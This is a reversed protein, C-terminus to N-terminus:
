DNNVSKKEQTQFSKLMEEYVQGALKNQQEIKAKAIAREYAALPAKRKIGHNKLDNKLKNRRLKREFSGM